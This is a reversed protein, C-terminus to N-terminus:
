ALMELARAFIEASHRWTPLLPAAARAAGALRQRLGADGIVRRLAQALAPVDGADVLLGAEPPVTDPIAGASSGVVPLGHALAEAYAMGYGEFRSALVFMDAEAYLAALRQPSVAGLVEIRNGLAHRAIDADLRAACDNDRTRDGAITLKWPLDGLTALAPILVDFGKRPVVAGVSLLRVVGDQSGRALPAPDSGPKAVTIREAPVGYDSVVLKATAASTVVVGKVAALATRESARLAEAQAPSLGWELALPHHVLALLPNRGALQWSADPLAGLALGDIVIARGAPVAFLRTLAAARTAESPWPFDEGLDLLDIEWGLDGLEAIMRRDYGYGGTPTALDGPVAFVFRGVV